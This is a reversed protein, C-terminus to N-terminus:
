PYVRLSALKADNPSVPALANRQGIGLLGVFTKGVALRIAFANIVLVSGLGIKMRIGLTM